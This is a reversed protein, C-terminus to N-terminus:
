KISVKNIPLQATDITKTFVKGSGLTTPTQKVFSKKSMPSSFDLEISKNMGYSIFNQESQSPIHKFSADVVELLEIEGFSVYLTSLAETVTIRYYRYYDLKVNNVFERVQKQTWIGLGVRDDLLEWDVDNNSGELRFGQPTYTSTSDDATIIFKGVKKKEGLDVKIWEGVIKGSPTMWRDSTGVITNNFAKYVDYSVNNISSASVVVSGNVNSSMTPVVDSSYTFPQVSLNESNSLILIKNLPYNAYAVYGTPIPYAFATIGFNFTVTKTANSITRFLPFVEGMGALDTHSVGMSVGNKYFELKGNDLDLAIGIVNGVAVSTGYATAEPYKNAIDFRFARYHPSDVTVGTSHNSAISFTKNAIGIMITNTGSDFKVEWYYKGKAKGRTARINGGNTASTTDTLNGNSLTHVLNSDSPNLTVDYALAM